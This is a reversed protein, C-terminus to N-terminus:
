LYAGGYEYVSLSSELQTCCERCHRLYVIGSLSVQEDDNFHLIGDSQTRMDSYGEVRMPSFQHWPKFTRLIQEKKDASVIITMGSLTRSIMSPRSGRLSGSESSGFYM